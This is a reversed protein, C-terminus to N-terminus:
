FVAAKMKVFARNSTTALLRRGDKFTAAFTVKKTSGGIVLGAILGVPGAVFRGLVGLGLKKAISPIEEETVLEVSALDSLRLSQPEADLDADSARLLLREGVLTGRGAFDGGHVKIWAM